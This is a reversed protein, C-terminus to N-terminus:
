KIDMTIIRQRIEKWIYVCKVTYIAKLVAPFSENLCM